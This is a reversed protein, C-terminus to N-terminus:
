HQSTTSLGLYIVDVKGDDVDYVHITYHESLNAGWVEIEQASRQVAYSGNPFLHASFPHIQTSSPLTKSM